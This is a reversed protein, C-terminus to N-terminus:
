PRPQWTPDYGNTDVRTKDLGDTARMSWVQPNGGTSYNTKDFLIRKGDPSYVPSDAGMNEGYDALRKVGTKDLNVRYVSRRNEGWARSFTLRTGSPAWDPRGASTLTPALSRLTSADGNSKIVRLRAPTCSPGGVYAVKTGDPSWVGDAMSGAVGSAFQRRGTGDVGITHLRSNGSADSFLQTFMVRTGSPNFTPSTYQGVNKTLNRKGSGDANMVFVDFWGPGFDMSGRLYVIKNGNASYSPATVLGTALTTEAGSSSQSVIASGRAFAIKGNTGRYAAGAPLSMSLALVASLALVVARTSLTRFM